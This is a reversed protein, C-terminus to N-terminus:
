QWGTTGYKSVNDKNILFTQVPTKKEVNQKNLVKYGLEASKVGIQKPSQAGTGVFQGGSAIEKKADPSGDVGYILIKSQKASKCAALAGLATPDNGGMIAVIDSHSQLIDDALKMSTQLDGKGDQEAVITFNKGEIASKFGAIRDNISNMTPCNLIAIKGGNPYRKVLDDGCVKGANKNDSGVYATVYNMDKVETDFNIIPINAKKLAELGPRVGEWDVPNLFVAEVGQTIMDNIQDIQKSVDMAPDMTILQDGNKEVEARISKELVQFFPNNMTMCTYGFKHKKKTSSSQSSGSSSSGCGVFLGVVLSLSLVLGLIKRAKKM